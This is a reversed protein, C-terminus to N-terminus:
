GGGGMRYTGQSFGVEYPDWDDIDQFWDLLESIDPEEDEERPKRESPKKRPLPTAPWGQIEM